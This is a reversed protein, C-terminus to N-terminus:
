ASDMWHASESIIACCNIPARMNSLGTKYAPQSPHGRALDRRAGGLSEPMIVERPAIRALEEFVRMGVDDGSFQTAGFEGTSVEALRHRARGNVAIGCRRRAFHGDLYNAKGEELLAPEVVTGPTMVRTM